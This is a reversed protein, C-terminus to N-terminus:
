LMSVVNHLSDAISTHSTKHRSLDIVSNSPSSKHSSAVNIFDVDLANIYDPRNERTLRQHYFNNNANDCGVVTV